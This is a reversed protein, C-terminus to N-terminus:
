QHTEQAATAHAEDELEVGLARLRGRAEAEALTHPWDRLIRRYYFQAADSRKTHEYWQAISLDKEARKQRIGELRDAVQEREAYSPYTNEFQRYKEDAERLPTDDFKVGPFAAEASVATREMAMQVFRGKPYQEVLNAYEDQALDMDGNGFRYDGKYKLALEGMRSGPERQWVRDLIEVGDDYAPLRFIRWLIRKQGALFARGVDLCRTQALRFLEGSSNEAVSQYQQVAKWFDRSEYYTDGLLFVGEEYREDDANAKIWKQLIKRADDPKNKALLARAQGLTDGPLAEEPAEQDTWQDNDPTLVQRERYKPEQALALVACCAVAGAALVFRSGRNHLVLVV